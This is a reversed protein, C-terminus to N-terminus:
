PDDFMPLAKEVFHEDIKTDADVIFILKYKQYLNFYKLLYVLAKAKGQGPMIQVAHCGQKRALDYTRDVSGDSVVYIQDASLSKKLMQLSDEIVMEENHAPFLVALDEKRFRPHAPKQRPFLHFKETIVRILGILGWFTMTIGIPLGFHKM